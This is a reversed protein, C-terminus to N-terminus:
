LHCRCDDDAPGPVGAAWGRVGGDAALSFVRRGAQVLSVVGAEHAHWHALLAPKVGTSFVRLSGCALGLWLRNCVPAACRIGSGM